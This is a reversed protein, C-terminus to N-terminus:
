IRSECKDVGGAEQQCVWHYFGSLLRQALLLSMTCPVCPAVTGLGDEGSAKREQGLLIGLVLTEGTGSSM